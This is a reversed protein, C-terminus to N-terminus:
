SELAALDENSDVDRPPDADVPLFIVRDAM